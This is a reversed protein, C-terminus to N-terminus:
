AFRIQAESFPLAEYLSGKFIFDSIDGSFPRKPSTPKQFFRIKIYFAVKSRAFLM